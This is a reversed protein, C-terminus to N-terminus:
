AGAAKVGLMYGQFESRNSDNEPGYHSQFSLYIFFGMVEGPILGAVM